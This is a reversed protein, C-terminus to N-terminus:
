RQEPNWHWCAGDDTPAGVTTPVWGQLHCSKKEGGMSHKTNRKDSRKKFLSILLPFIIFIPHRDKISAAVRHPTSELVRVLTVSAPEVVCFQRSKEPQSFDTPRELNMWCNSSQMVPNKLGKFSGSFRLGLPGGPRCCCSVCFGCSSSPTSASPMGASIVLRPSHRARSM